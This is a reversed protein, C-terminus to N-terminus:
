HLQTPRTRITFADAIRPGVSHYGREGSGFLIPKIKQIDPKNNTLVDRDAKVDVVEGVFMTHLGLKFADKLKCEIVLPYEDVFPADVVKSKIPTLATDKFKDTDRGSTSGCFETETVLDQSPVNVVFEGTEQVLKHSYRRPSIGITVLPPNHSIPMYMGLTIINPKGDVGICTALVVSTPPGVKLARDLPVTEKM